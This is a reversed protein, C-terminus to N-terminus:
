TGTLWVRWGAGEVGAVGAGEGPREDRREHEQASAESPVSRVPRSRSTRRRADGEAEAEAEAEGQGAGEGEGQGAGEGEGEGGEGLVAPAARTAMPAYVCLEVRDVSKPVASVHRAVSAAAHVGTRAASSSRCSTFVTRTRAHYSAVRVAGM